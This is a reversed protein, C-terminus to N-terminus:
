RKIFQWFLALAVAIAVIPLWPGPLISQFMAFIANAAVGIAQFAGGVLGTIGEGIARALGGFVDDM